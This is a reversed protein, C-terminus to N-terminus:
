STDTGPLQPESLYWDDPAHEAPDICINFIRDLTRRHDCGITGWFYVYNLYRDYDDPRRWGDPDFKWARSPNYALKLHNFNVGFVEYGKADARTNQAPVWAEGICDRDPVIPVGDVWLADFGWKVVQSNARAANAMLFQNEGIQARYADWLAEAVFLATPKKGTTIHTSQIIKSLNMLSPSVPTAFTDAGQMVHAQWQRYGATSSVLEGYTNDNACASDLGDIEAPTAAPNGDFIKANLSARMSETANRVQAGMLDILEQAGQGDTDQAELLVKRRFYKYDFKARTAIEGTVTTHTGVQDGKDYWEGDETAIEILPTWCTGAASIMNRRFWQLVPTGTFINDVLKRPTYAETLAEFTSASPVSAIAGM